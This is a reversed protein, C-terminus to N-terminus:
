SHAKVAFSVSIYDTSGGSNSPQIDSETWCYAAENPYDAPRWAFFFPLSRASVVFPDFFQRYFLATLREFSLTSELGRRRIQRGLWEGSESRNNFYDTVRNLTIPNVGGYIPHPIQLAVGASIVGIAGAGAGGVTVRLRRATVPESFFMMASQANARPAAFEIFDSIDTESYEVTVLRGTIQCAGLAVCDVQRPTVFNITAVSEGTFTWRDSTRPSLVNLPAGTVSTVGSFLNAYLIRPHTLPFPPLGTHPVPTIIGAPPNVNPM